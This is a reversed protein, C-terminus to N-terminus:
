NMSAVPVTYIVVLDNFMTPKMTSGMQRVLAHISLTVHSCLILVFVWFLNNAPHVLPIDKLVAGKEQIRLVMKTIIVQLKTGVDQANAYNVYGHGLSCRTYMDLFNYLQHPKTTM